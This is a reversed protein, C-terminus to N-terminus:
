ITRKRETYSFILPVINVIKPDSLRSLIREDEGKLAGFPDELPKRSLATILTPLRSNYRYNLIQFIVDRAWPTEERINLDDLILLPAKKIREIDEYRDEHSRLFSLLEPVSAFFVEKGM